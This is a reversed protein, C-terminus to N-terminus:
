RPAKMSGVHLRGRRPRRLRASPPRPLGLALSFTAEAGGEPRNVLTAQGGHLLAVERVFALGLGTRTGPSGEPPVTYFRDFVRPLAYEPVGRGTDTVRVKVHSVEREVTVTVEGGRPTFDLANQVLNHLAQRILFRDGSLAPLEAVRTELAIGRQQAVPRASAAVDEMVQRLDVGEVVELQKRAEVASLELMRDVMLQLRASETRINGTFRCRDQLPMDEELLEAAARIATLPGKIEHTLTRVYGEIYRKGELADRMGEFAKGLRGIESSGLPPLVPREGQGIAEAYVTLRKIPVTIWTALLLSLVGVVVLAVLGAMLVNRSANSIFLKISDVPKGVALVGVVRNDARIPAAVYLVTSFFDKPDVRTARAGYQGKLTRAVDNWGAYAQGEARGSDSDYIVRGRHNTVYVRLLVGRKHLEYIQADLERRAAIDLAARLDGIDITGAHVKSEVLSALITATDALSEEVAKLPQPRLDTSVWRLLLGLGTALVLLFALFLRLRISV